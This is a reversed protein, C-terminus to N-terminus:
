PAGVRNGVQELLGNLAQRLREAWGEITAARHIRTSYLWSLALQDETLHSNLIVLYSVLDDPRSCDIPEAPSFEAFPASAAIRGRYNFFLEAHPSSTLPAVEEDEALYRLIGYGLGQQPARLEAALQQLWVEVPAEGRPDLVLPFKTTLAGCTRSLDLEALADRGHHEVELRLCSLMGDRCLAEVLGALLLVELGLGLASAVQVLEQSLRAELDQHLYALDGVLHRREPFDCPLPQQRLRRPELWWAKDRAMEASETQAVLTECWHRYSCGVPDLQLPTGAELQRVLTCFDDLLIQYFSYFDCTLHHAIFHVRLPGSDDFVFVMLRAAPGTHLSISRYSALALANHRELRKDPQLDRLDHLEFSPDRAEAIHAQPRIRQHDLRLRLVEHTEMLCALIEAFREPAFHVQMDMAQSMLWVHRQLDFHDLYWHIHPSAPLPGHSSDRSPGPIPKALAALRHLCPEVLVDRPVLRLGERAVLAVMRIVALSDGGLEHFRDHRSIKPRQFLKSWVGALVREVGNRPAEYDSAATAFVPAPLNRRDVKGNLTLPFRELFMTYAPLMYEPLSERLHRVLEHRLRARLRPDNDVFVGPRAVIYAVLAPQGPHLERAVVVAEAVDEHSALRQEIEGLEIRYGRLKVQFDSRGLYHLLDDAGRRVLDGTRYLRGGPLHSFPDPVFREATLSARGRYGRALGFGGICLEGPVGKPVARGHNDLAQLSTHAIAEGLHISPELAPEIAAVASWVTTETPGYMNWLEHGARLLRGALAPTLAEGGCLAKLPRTPGAELLMTWTAPTAQLLDVCHREILERLRFGDSVSDQDAIACVGGCVLPLYLELVAIDFCPTTVALLTQAASMGPRQAMAALFNLLARESVQVGKPRGTSGSTFLIYALREPEPQVEIAGPRLRPCDDPLVVAPAGAPLLSLTAAEAIVCAPRGDEFMQALRATPYIPDMPIYCGGAALVALLAIPLDLGRELLVAVPVELGVGHERLCAALQGVRGMLGARALRAEGAVLATGDPQELAKATLWNILTPAPPVPAASSLLAQALDQREGDTLLELHSLRLQPDAVVQETLRLFHTWLRTVTGPLFLQTNYEIVGVLADGREVLSFGLDYKSTGTDCLLPACACGELDFTLEAESQLTFLVQFLPSFEPQHGPVLQDALLQFPLESDRQAAQLVAQVQEAFEAFNLEAQPKLRLPLLNLCLGVLDSLEQRPRDAAVTGIVLDHQHTYRSLLVALVALLGSFPTAGLEGAQQRLASYTAASMEIPLLAGAFSMLAPRPLDTVLDLQPAGALRQRWRDLSEALVGSQWLQRQWAAYAAYQISSRAQEPLQGGLAERYGLRLERALLVMSPGDVVLHHLCLWLYARQAEVRIVLVRMAPAHALDFPRRVEARGISEALHGANDLGTLDIVRVACSCDELRALPQGELDPFSLGLAEHRSLMWNAARELAEPALRGELLNGTAVNYVVEGPDLRHIFWIREQAPSLAMVQGRELPCPDIPPLALVAHQELWAALEAVSPHAFLDAPGVRKGCAGVLLGALRAALLSHMGLEFFNATASIESLGLLQGLQDALLQELPGRPARPARSPRLAPPAPKRRHREPQGRPFAPELEDVRELGALPQEALGLLLGPLRQFHEALRAANAPAILAADYDLSGKCGNGDAELDLILDFRAQSGSLALPEFANTGLVLRAPPVNRLVFAVRLLDEADHRGHERLDQVLQQLPLEQHELAGLLIARVRAVLGAFTLAAQGRLDLPLPLTNVLFGVLESWEPRDRGASATTLVFREQDCARSLALAFASMLLMNVTLEPYRQRLAALMVPDLAIPLHALPHDGTAGPRALRALELPVADALQARWWARAGDMTSVRARQWRAFTLPSPAPEPWAPARNALVAEYAQRWDRLLLAVSWADSIIHHHNFVLLQHDSTRLLLCRALPAVTLDFTRDAEASMLAQAEKAARDSSLGSLDVMRLWFRASPDLEQCPPDQLPFRSILGPHRDSLAGLAQELAAAALQQGLRFAVPLNYTSAPGQLRDLYWLREQAFSLPARLDQSLDADSTAEENKRVERTLAAALAAVTPAEFLLRLPLDRGTRRSLTAMARAADLSHGGRRFFHDKAGFDAQGLIEAFVAAVEAQGATLQSPVVPTQVLPLPMADLARRDIKGNATLPLEELIAFVAPVMYDPLRASLRSRLEDSALQAAPRPRLWAVLQLGGSPIKRPRVAVQAIDGLALLANEIEGPEIRYGRLKVQFDARGLYRLRWGGPEAQFRALDGTRYRRAGPTESEADPVFREATLGPRGHYGRALGIGGITLEGVAGLAVPLGAPDLLGCTTNAIPRGLALSTEDGPDLPNLVRLCTSWITTETPGYVNWLEGGRTMLARALEPSLAEGGCIMRLPRRWGSEALLTWTAPTAQLVTAQVRELLAALAVPDGTCEREAVVLRAGELLPLFLELAAIDFCPTTVAVLTDDRGLGPALAMSNLLNALAQQSIMVGKPRGTSGSTFLLYALQQPWAEPFHAESPADREPLCELAFLPWADILGARVRDCIVLKPTADALMAALRERPYLEDLPVYVAGALAVALLALPLRADRPLLVAVRDEREIGRLRLQYALARAAAAFARYSIAPGAGHSVAPRQGAEAATRLFREALPVLHEPAVHDGQWTALFANEAPTRLPLEALRSKLPLAILLAEYRQALREITAEHFLDSAYEWQLRLEGEDARAELVLEFACSATETLALELHTGGALPEQSFPVNQLLLMVQVLPTRSEDREFDCRRVLQEFPADVHALAELLAARGAHLADIVGLEPNLCERLVLTDIFLGILREAAPERGAVATGLALDRQGCWRWLLIRLALKLVTFLTTDSDRALGTLMSLVEPGLRRVLRAGRQSARAPRKLDCPLSPLVLGALRTQWWDLDAGVTHQRRALEYYTHSPGPAEPLGRLRAEYRTRLEDLLVGISWGDCAIHHVCCLLLHAQDSERLLMARLPAQRELAFPRQAMERALSVKSKIRTAPDLGSLDILAVAGLGPGLEQVPQDDLLPFRSRLPQHHLCVEGLANALIDTALPGSLTMELPVHYARSDPELRQQFHIRAQAPTLPARENAMLARAATPGLTDLYAQLDGLIPLRFVDGPSLRRAGMQRMRAVVRLAALSNGGVAFFNASAAPVKALGLVEQWCLALPTASRDGRYSRPGSKQKSSPWSDFSGEAWLAALVERHGHRWAQPMAQDGNPAEGSFVRDIDARGELHARLHALLDSRESCVVALRHRQAQRARLRRALRRPDALLAPEGHGSVLWALKARLENMTRASFVFIRSNM